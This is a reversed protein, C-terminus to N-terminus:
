ILGSEFDAAVSKGCERGLTWAMGLSVGSTPTFYDRGFRHGVLNGSGYLGPIPEYDEGLIRQEGDTNLGGLTTLGSPNFAISSTQGYFPGESFPWMLSPERGFSSDAGSECYGNYVDITDQINSIVATDTIGMKKVLEEITEAGYLNVSIMFDPNEASGMEDSELSADMAQQLCSMFSLTPNTNSHSPNIYQITEFLNSPYISYTMQRKMFPFTNGRNEASGWFENCFRKGESNVWIGCPWGASSSRYSMTEVPPAQLKAGAWYAMKIGDGYRGDMTTGLSEGATCIEAIDPLLDAVMEEDCGFGGTALIVASANYRMYAGESDTAILGTIAGSENKLLYQATTGFHFEAGAKKASERNYGHIMAQTCSGYFGCSSTYSKFAGVGSLIHEHYGTAMETPSAAPTDYFAIFMSDKDEQTLGDLYIDTAEGSNQAYKMILEPNSNNATILQWNNFYEIPDIRPVGNDLLIQANIVGGENGNPIYNEEEQKEILIVSHGAEALYRCANIGAHGHGVVVVETEYNEIIESDAVPVPATKWSSENTTETSESVTADGAACGGLLGLSAIGATGAAAGKLFNRRSLGKSGQM